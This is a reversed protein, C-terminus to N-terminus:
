NRSHSLGLAAAIAQQTSNLGDWTLGFGFPNAGRRKKTVRRVIVDPVNLPTTFPAPTQAGTGTWRWTYTDETITTEMVYGYRMVLGYQTLQSLNHLVDGANSVWDIAWSWPALNWLTEPTLDLGFVRHAESAAREMTSNSTFGTPAHYTFAGSFWMKRYTTRYRKCDGIGAASVWDGSNRPGIYPSSNSTIGVPTSHSKELPFDFRRRVVRGSDREFQRMVARAHRVAKASSKIDSILPQWGFVVNLFEDGVNRLALAKAEWTRIGPIAPLGDKLTEGLFTATQAVPNVPSCRAVATAGKQNLTSNSSSADPPDTFNSPNCPLPMGHFFRGGQPDGPRNRINQNTNGVIDFEVKDTTFPGGLDYKAAM